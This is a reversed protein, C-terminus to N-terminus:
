NIDIAFICNNVDYYLQSSVLRKRVDGLASTWNIQQRFKCHESSNHIEQMVPEALFSVLNLMFTKYFVM